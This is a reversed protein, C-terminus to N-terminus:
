QVSHQAQAAATDAADPLTEAEETEGAERLAIRFNLNVCFLREGTSATAQFCGMYPGQLLMFMRRWVNRQQEQKSDSDEHLAAQTQRLEEHRARASVAAAAM